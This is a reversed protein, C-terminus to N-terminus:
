RVWNASPLWTLPAEGADRGAYVWGSAFGAVSLALLRPAARRTTRRVTVWTRATAAHSSM